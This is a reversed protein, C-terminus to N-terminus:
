ERVVGGPCNANNIATKVGGTTIVFRAVMVVNFTLCASVVSSPSGVGFLRVTMGGHGGGAGFESRNSGARSDVM